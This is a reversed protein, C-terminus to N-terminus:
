NEIKSIINKTPPFALPSILNNCVFGSTSCSLLMLFTRINHNDTQVHEITIYKNTNVM